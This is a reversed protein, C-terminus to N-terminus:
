CKEIQAGPARINLYKIENEKKVAFFVGKSYVLRLTDDWLASSDDFDIGSTFVVTTKIWPKLDFNRSFSFRRLSNYYFQHDWEYHKKDKQSLYACLYAAIAITRIFRIKTIEGGGCEQWVKNLWPKYIFHNIVAHIHPYGDAHLEIVKAFKLDPYVRKCRKVFLDWSRSLSDLSDQLSTKNHDFTLTLSRWDQKKIGGKIRYKLVSAKKKRCEKCDWSHCNNAKHHITGGNKNTNDYIIAQSKCYNKISKLHEEYTGRKNRKEPWKIIPYIKSDPYWGISYLPSTISKL